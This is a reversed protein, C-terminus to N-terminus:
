GPGRRGRGGGGSRVPPDPPTARRPAYTGSVIRAGDYLGSAALGLLLGSTAAQWAPMGAFQQDAVALTVGLAVALMPAFKAPMGLDRALTVLGLIAPATLLTTIPDM